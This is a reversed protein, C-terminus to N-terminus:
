PTLIEGAHQTDMYEKVRLIKGDRMEFAFHYQNNYKRGNRLHMVSEAEVAVKDGDIVWSKPTIKLGESSMRATARLMELMQAKTKTGSLALTGAVWWEGDEAMNRLIYEPESWRGEGFAQLTELITRKTQERTM